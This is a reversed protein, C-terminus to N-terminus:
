LSDKELILIQLHWVTSLKVWNTIQYKLALERIRVTVSM